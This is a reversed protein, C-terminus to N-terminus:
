SAGIIEAMKLILAESLAPYHCRVTILMGKTKEVVQEQLLVAVHTCSLESKRGHLLGYLTAADKFVDVAVLRLHSMCARVGTAIATKSCPVFASAIPTTALANGVVEELYQSSTPVALPPVPKTFYLYELPLSVVAEQRKREATWSLTFLVPTETFSPPLQPALVLELPVDVTATGRLKEAIRLSTGGEKSDTAGAEGHKGADVARLLVSGEAFGDSPAVTMQVDRVASSSTRNTCVAICGLHIGGRRLKCSSLTLLLRLPSKDYLTVAAAEVAQAAALQEARSHASGLAGGRQQQQQLLQAYSLTQPLREDARLARTVDIGRLKRTAEDEEPTRSRRANSPNKEHYNAPKSLQRNISHVKQPRRTRSHQQLQQQSPSSSSDTAFSDNHRGIQKASRSLPSSGATAAFDDMESAAMDGSDRLYYASMEERRAQETRRQQEIRYELNYNFDDVDLATDRQEDDDDSGSLDMLAAVNDCFPADLDVDAPVEISDQAGAAVPLLVVEFLKPGIEAHSVIQYHVLHARELVSPYTSHCFRRLGRHQQQAATNAIATGKQSDAPSSGPAGDEDKDEPLLVLRTLEELSPPPHPEEDAGRCDEEGNCLELHRACPQYVYAAMKGVAVVCALQVDAPMLTMSEDLLCRCTETIDPVWHPYEGCVFAAACLIRWQTSHVRDCSLLRVDRLLPAMEEVGARRVGNVRSLICVLEQEMFAGHAYTTLEVVCLDLLVGLYWEFDQIWEYDNTQATETIACIVANSWAEDPPTRVCRDLMHNVHSVVTKRTTLGQLVRLAKLRITSDPDDLCSLVIERQDALLKRNEASAALLLSFVELGLFKLNPDSDEVFGRIKEVTLTTLSSVRSLGNAVALLCEYQVSQASTTNILNTMPEVLKKGLRPELPAFYGFVKVIKILTWNSHVSSLFSYFPVALGLFNAPNRRALECLVCVVAGRVAPDTDSRESNDELKEKLKGYTLRLSEPYSLFIRYLSLTAKKRVYSRPHSLLNVVDAVVDQAMDATCISAICYLALGVEYQNGSSLDRKLSATMLPIVDTDETFTLSAALYAIRKHLFVPSAMMEVVRFNAYQSSYGLMHFYTAKQIAAIKVRPDAGNVENKTEAIYKDMAEEETGAPAGRLNRVVAALSNQSFVALSM